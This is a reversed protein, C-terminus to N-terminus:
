NKIIEIEEPADIVSTVKGNEDKTHKLHIQENIKAIVGEINAIHELMTKMMFRYHDDLNGRLAEIIYQRPAKVRGHVHYLLREPKYDGELIEAIIKM